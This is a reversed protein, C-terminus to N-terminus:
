RLGAYIYNDDLYVSLNVLSGQMISVLRNNPSRLELYDSFVRIRNFRIKDRSGNALNPVFTMSKKNM